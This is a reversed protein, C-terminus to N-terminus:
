DQTNMLGISFVLLRVGPIKIYKHEAFITSEAYDEGVMLYANGKPGLLSSVREFYLGPECFARAIVAQYRDKPIYDELRSHIVQANTVALEQLCHQLFVTRKLRSDLLDVHKEPCAIAMPLGPLGAGTGVDILRSEPVHNVVALSDLVHRTMMAEPDTVATFNHVKNWKELLQVYNVLQECQQQSLTLNMKALGQQLINYLSNNLLSDGAVNKTNKAVLAHALIM